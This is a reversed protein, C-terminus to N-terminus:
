PEEHRWWQGDVLLWTEDMYATVVPLSLGPVSPKATLAMRVTCKEPECTVKAVESRMVPASPGFQRTFDQENRLDRYAPTLLSYATKPDASTRAKWFLTAREQVQQEPAASGPTACGALALAAMAAALAPRLLPIQSFNKM